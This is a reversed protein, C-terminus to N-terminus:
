PRDRRPTCIARAAAGPPGQAGAPGVPGVPGVPGPPGPDGKDGKPGIAGLAVDFDAVKSNYGNPELTLLYSGPVLGPPLLATVATSTFSAVTLSTGDLAVLPKATGLHLGTITLKTPATSSNPVAALTAVKPEDQALALPLCLQLAAGPALAYVCVGRRNM